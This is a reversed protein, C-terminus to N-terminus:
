EHTSEPIQETWREWRSFVPLAEPNRIDLENAEWYETLVRGLRRIFAPSALRTLAEEMVSLQRGLTIDGFDGYQAMLNLGRKYYDIAGDLRKLGVALSGLSGYFRGLSLIRPHKERKLYSDCKEQLADLDSFNGQVVDLYALTELAAIEYIVSRDEVAAAYTQIAIERSENYREMDLLIRSLRHLIMARDRRLGIARAQEMSQRAEELRRMSMLTAGRWAYVTSLWELDNQPEFIDAAEKLYRLSEEYSGMMYLVSGRTSKAAGIGRPSQIRDWLGMAQNSLALAENWQRRYGYVFALNNLLWGQQEEMDLRLALKLAIRYHSAAENWNGILRNGYGVAKEALVSRNELAPNKCVSM